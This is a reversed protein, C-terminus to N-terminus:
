GNQRLGVLVFVVVGFVACWRGGAFADILRKTPCLSPPMISGAVGGIPDGGRPASLARDITESMALAVSIM